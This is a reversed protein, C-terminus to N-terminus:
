FLGDATYRPTAGESGVVLSALTAARKLAAAPGDPSLLLGQLLAALFSDGAGVTDRVEVPVSDVWHWMDNYLLGGGSAGATICVRECGTQQQLARASAEIDKLPSSQDLLIVAEEDSLKLLDATRALARIRAPADYPSRMNVDFVRLAEPTRDFLQQLVERNHTTRQAVSGYVVADIPRCSAPLREPLGIYDWAVDEVIDFTPSGRDLTVNVRGTQSNTTIGILETSVGWDALQKLLERGGSDNGVRSVPWASCGLRSLHYAVNLPSGGPYRGEPLCDWLIEGFCLVKPAQVEMM